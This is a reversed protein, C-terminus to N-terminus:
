LFYKVFVNMVLNLSKGFFFNHFSMLNVSLIKLFKKVKTIPTTMLPVEEYKCLNNKRYFYSNVITKASM